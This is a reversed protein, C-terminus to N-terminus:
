RGTMSAQKGCKPDCHFCTRCCYGAMWPFKTPNCKGFGHQQKCSYQHKGPAAHPPIDSCAPTPAPVPPPTPAAPPTPPIPPPFPPSPAPPSPPTPPAPAPAPTPKGGSKEKMRRSHAAFVALEPDGVM